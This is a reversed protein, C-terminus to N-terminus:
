RPRCAPASTSLSGVGHRAVYEVAQGLFQRNERAMEASVPHTALMKEALARDAAFNDKGDLLYDHNRYTNM